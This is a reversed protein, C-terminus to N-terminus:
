LCSDINAQVKPKMTVIPNGAVDHIIRLNPALTRRVEKAIFKISGNVDAVVFDGNALTLFVLVIEQESPTCYQSGIIPFPNAFPHAM